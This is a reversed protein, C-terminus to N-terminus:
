APTRIGNGYHNYSETRPATTSREEGEDYMEDARQLVNYQDYQNLDLTLVKTCQRGQDRCTGM